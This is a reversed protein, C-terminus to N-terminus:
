TASHSSVGHLRPHPQGDVPLQNDIGGREWRWGVGVGPGQGKQTRLVKRM